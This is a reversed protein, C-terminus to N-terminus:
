RRLLGNNYIRSIGLGFSDWYTNSFKLKNMLEILKVLQM